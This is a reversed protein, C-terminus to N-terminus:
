AFFIHKAALQLFLTNGLPKSPLQIDLSVGNGTDLTAEFGGISPRISVLSVEWGTDAVQLHDRYAFAEKESPIGWAKKAPNPLVITKGFYQAVAVSKPAHMVENLTGIQLCKGQHLILVSDALHMADRVDHSVLISTMNEQQLVEKLGQRVSSKLAEDLNSFPEDMLLLDPKPGLARALSVRQQQGGSLEHPYRKKLEAVDTLDLMESLRKQAEGKSLAHLGFLVNNEVTMHPFLAYNQFVLGLKRKEPKVFHQPSVLAEEQLQISGQDPLEFGTILRLLTSKGSGSGGLIALTKGKELQLDLKQLAKVAGFNKSLQSIRLYSM